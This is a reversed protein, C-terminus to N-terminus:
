ATHYGSSKACGLHAIEVYRSSYLEFAMRGIKGLKTSSFWQYKRNLGLPPLLFSHLCSRIAV